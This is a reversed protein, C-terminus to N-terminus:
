ARAGNTAAPGLQQGSRQGLREGLREGHWETPREAPREVPREVPDPAQARRSAEAWAEPGLAARAASTVQDFVQPPLEARMGGLLAGREAGNLAPLISGFWEALRAPPISGVIRAHMARLEDDSKHAWLMRNTTVEEQEMHRLHEAVLLGLREHLRRGLSVREALSAGPLRAALAAIEAQLGHVRAHASRLDAHLEPAIRVLEPLIVEDEHEAHEDLFALLQDLRERARAAEEPQAFDTRAVLAAAEFLLARLGKHVTTYLDHRDM